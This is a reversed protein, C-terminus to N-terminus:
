SASKAAPGESAATDGVADGGRGSWVFATTVMVVAPVAAMAYFHIAPWRLAALFGLLSVVAIPSLLPGVMIAAMGASLFWIFMCGASLYPMAIGEVWAAISLLEQALLMFVIMAALRRNVATRSLSPRGWAYLGLVMALFLITVLVFHVPTLRAGRSQLIRAALPFVMWVTGLSLIAVLRTRRGIAADQDRGIAALQRLRMQEDASAAVERRTREALEPNPEDIEALLSEAAKPNGQGLEWGAMLEIARALGARPEADPPYAAIAEGFGFRCEALLSYLRTRADGGAPAPGSLEEEMAALRREAQATLRAAGRRELFQVLALRIEEASAFRRDPDAAMARRCIAALDPPASDPLAPTSAIVSRVVADADGAAHPPRGALIEYLIAGLLYVDTRESLREPAGGLMEPAMYVPTGAMETADRARPLRGGTDRLAVALGWDLVYVEGFAGLMVNEPKLDRHIIGRSHAFHLARCVQMLTQLNWELLDDTGFRDRVLDGARMLRSWNAGEIRKFVIFPNRDRDIGVDYVPVVSPHELAGTIWGETLLKLAAEEDLRDPRVSKVAVKRGVTTQTALRVVGMGGSGIVDGIDFRREAASVSAAEALLGLAERGATGPTPHAPKITSTPSREITEAIAVSPPENPPSKM